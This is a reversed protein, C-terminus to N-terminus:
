VGDFQPSMSTNSLTLDFPFVGSSLPFSFVVWFVRFLAVQMTFLIHLHKYNLDWM